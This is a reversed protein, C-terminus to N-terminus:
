KDVIVIEVRRNATRQQDNVEVAYLKENSGRGEYSMRRPDIGSRLLFTYVEKARNVSLEYTKTDMDYGDM